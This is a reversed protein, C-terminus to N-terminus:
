DTLVPLCSKASIIVFGWMHVKNLNGRVKDRKQTLVISLTKNKGSYHRLAMYGSIGLLRKEWFRAWCKEFCNFVDIVEWGRERKREWDREKLREARGDYRKKFITVLMLYAWMQVNPEDCNSNSYLATPITWFATKFYWSLINFYSEFNSQKLVLTNGSPCTYDLLFTLYFSSHYIDIPNWLFSTM